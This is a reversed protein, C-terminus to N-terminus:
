AEHGHGGSGVGQGRGPGPGSRRGQGGIGGATGAVTLGQHHGGAQQEARDADEHLLGPLIRRGRHPEAADEPKGGEKVGCTVLPATATVPPPLPGGPMTAPPQTTTTVVEDGKVVLIEDFFCGSQPAPDSWKCRSDAPAAFAAAGVPISSLVLSIALPKRM